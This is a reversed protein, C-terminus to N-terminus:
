NEVRELRAQIVIRLSELRQLVEEMKQNSIESWDLSTTALKLSAALDELSPSISGGERKTITVTM